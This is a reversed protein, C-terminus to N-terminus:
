VGEVYVLGAAGNGGPCIWPDDTMWGGGGGGAGYGVEAQGFLGQPHTGNQAKQSPIPGNGDVLVGGGGGSTAWYTYSTDVLSGNPAAGGSGAAFKHITMNALCGVYTGNGQGNGGASGSATSKGGPGGATSGGGRCPARRRVRVVLRM